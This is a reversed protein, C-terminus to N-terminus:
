ISPYLLYYTIPFPSQLLFRFKRSSEQCLVRRFNHHEAPRSPAYFHQFVDHRSQQRIKWSCKKHGDM